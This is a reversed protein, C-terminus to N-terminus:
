LKIAASALDRLRMPDREGRQAFEIVKQAVVERLADDAVPRLKREHCIAEFAYAMAEIQVPEFGANQMLRYLPM